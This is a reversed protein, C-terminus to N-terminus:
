LPMDAIMTMFSNFITVDSVQQFEKKKTLSERQQEDHFLYCFWRSIFFGGLVPPKCLMVDVM